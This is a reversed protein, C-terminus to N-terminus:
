RLYGSIMIAIVLQWGIAMYIKCPASFLRLMQNKLDTQERQHRDSCSPSQLHAAASRAPDIVPDVARSAGSTPGSLQLNPAGERPDHCASAAFMVSIQSVFVGVTLNALKCGSTQFRSKCVKALSNLVSCKVGMLVSMACWPVIDIGIDLKLIMKCLQNQLNHRVTTKWAAVGSLIRCDGLFWFNTLFFRFM